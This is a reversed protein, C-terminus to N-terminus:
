FIYNINIGTYYNVPNGPYYYRPASGGFGSANILIQSAYHTDFINNLGLFTNLKLKKNLNAKFGIKLNTLNYSDSYLSNVDTIPMRGVYQFNINGYFGFASDFLIGTNFVESPVGTLENGSYDTANDIFEKFTFNNLTYNAFASISLEEKKLWNYNLSVELGDHQTKGANVGIFEDQATRRSVLLNEINLRFVSLSLQLKNNLLSARTGVEFNWGTEPKLDTNIQGDPLLTENLSIPSFGHSINSFLSMNKSFLHSVGLKPSVISKFIFSGSQDPNEDSVAFRDDLKYATKNLNFGLSLTTNESFEYNTEIFVNYYNRKEKFDSLRNGKISGTEPPLNEYLNEFTGHKYFDRFLEGGLTWNFTKNFLKSNGLLRTRIGLAFTNEILINFPRPEYSDRFSTFASSIQKLTSHYEHNWSLGFVGRKSNEFGKSQKWTFAAKEPNNLYDTENISSPIFAKLDVYSALFTLEDKENIYHSSNITFTQRDYGNNERYGDSHTNSYVVRFSNKFSGHNVNVIGKVLGFSGLSLETKIESQNIFGIKPTIHIVGGLGAGYISSGAGKIIEFRSISALEFDEITTEGSGNTLPIDKFYARIKSTGFLNRSGIGRITIRNTNLAGSQMFVGPTRNLIPAFDTNNSLQIGESSIISISTTTKKLKIPIHNANIIVENLESPNINLQIIYYQNNNLKVTKSVYGDKTFSYYGEKLIEFSGDAKSSIFTNDDINNIQTFELLTGTDRDVIKGKIKSQGFGIFSTCFFLLAFIKKTKLYV